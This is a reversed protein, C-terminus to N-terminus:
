KRVARTARSKLKRAMRAKLQDPSLGAEPHKKYDAWRRDLEQKQEATLPLLGDDAVSFWIDDLQQLRDDIPLAKIQKRVAAQTM